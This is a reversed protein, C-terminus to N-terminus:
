TPCTHTNLKDGSGVTVLQLPTQLARIKHKADTGANLRLSFSLMADNLLVVDDDDGLRFDRPLEFKSFFVLLTLVFDIADFSELPPPVFLLLPVSRSMWNSDLLELSSESSGSCFWGNRRKFEALALEVGCNDVDAGFELLSWLWIAVSSLEVMSLWCCWDVMHSPVSSPQMWTYLQVSLM